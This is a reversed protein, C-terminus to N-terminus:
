ENAEATRAQHESWREEPPTSVEREVDTRSVGSDVEAAGREVDENEEFYPETM